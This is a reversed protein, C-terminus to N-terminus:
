AAKRMDAPQAKGSIAAAVQAYDIGAYRAITQLANHLEYASKFGEKRQMSTRGVLGSVVEHLPLGAFHAITHCAQAHSILLTERTHLENM